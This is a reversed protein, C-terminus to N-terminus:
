TRPNTLDAWVVKGDPLQDGGWRTATGAILQLGRGSLALTGGQRSVPMARSADRVAVRIHERRAHVTVTFDTRAHRIANTTLETVVLAADHAIAAHGARALVGLAFRRAAPASAAVPAFARSTDRMEDLGVIGGHLHCVHAFADPEADEHEGVRYGCYLAFAHRGRLKNWLTELEIAAPVLGREWLVGVMEGYARIPRGLAATRRVLEGVVADFRGPDPWDRVMLRALTDAADVAVFVGAAEARGIDAGLADAEAALAEQHEPTAIVIVAESDGLADAIWRGVRATLEADREYFQVVHDEPAAGLATSGLQPM